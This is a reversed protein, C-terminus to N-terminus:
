SNRELCSPNKWRNKLKKQREEEGIVQSAGITLWKRTVTTEVKKRKERAAVTTVGHIIINGFLKIREGKIFLFWVTLSELVLALDLNSVHSRLIKMTIYPPPHMLAAAMSHGHCHSPLGNTKWERGSLTKWVIKGVWTILSYTSLCSGHVKSLFNIRMCRQERSDIFGGSIKSWVCM